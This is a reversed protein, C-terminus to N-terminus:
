RAPINDSGGQDSGENARSEVVKACRKAFQRQADATSWLISAESTFDQVEAYDEVIWDIKSMATRHSYPQLASVNSVEATGWAM